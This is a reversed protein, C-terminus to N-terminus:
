AEVEECRRKLFKEYEVEFVDLDERWLDKPTKKKLTKIQKRLKEEEQALEALRSETMSRMQMSLLYEYSPDKGEYALRELGRSELLAELAEDSQHMDIEKDVVGKVFLYKNSARQHKDKLDNLIYNRRDVYIQLRKPYWLKILDEIRRCKVPNEDEDLFYLNTLNKTSVLIDLNNKTEMDPTFGQAPVLGFCVSNMNHYEYYKKLARPLKGTKSMMANLRNVVASTWVGVPLEDIWWKVDKGGRKEKKGESKRLTGRTTYKIPFGSSDLTLTTEENNKFGRYWPVLNDCEDLIRFSEEEDDGDLMRRTRDLLDLPNYQPVTTSFASAIGEQGNFIPPIIPPMYRFEVPEGDEIVRPLVDCDVPPFLAEAIPDLYTQIYRPAGHDEGGAHRTGFQGDNVFLPINNSGVFGSAMGIIAESLSVAGHHYNTTVKIDGTVKELDRSKKGGANRKGEKDYFMAYLIKRHSSKMGDYASMIARTLSMRHYIILQDYVFKTLSLDGTIVTDTVKAPVSIWEKRRIMMPGKCDGMGLEFSTDARKDVTFTVLKLDKFYNPIDRPLHTALGKIYKLQPKLKKLDKQSLSSQFEQFEPNSYFYTPLIGRKKPSDASKAPPYLIVVPTTLTIVCGRQIFTPYEKKIFALVLGKIHIGDDDQDTCICVKGYRLKRYNEDITYDVGRQLGTMKRLIRIEENANVARSSNKMANLLKGKLAFTGSYDQAGLYGIGQETFAKASLGETIYLTCETSEATGAKNADTAKKGISMREGGANEKKAAVADAKLSLKEELAKVFSWKMMKAVAVDISTKWEKATKETSLTYPVSKGKSNMVETLEDKTQSSFKPRDVEARIFLKLYPYIQKASTKLKEKRKKSNFAKVLPSFIANSWADVHIGGATTHIGNVISNHQPSSAEGVDDADDTEVVVCEDGNPSVISMMKSSTDPYFLRVFKEMSPVKITQTSEDVTFTIPLKTLMAVEHAYLRLADIFEPTFGQESEEESPFAFYAFDPTFTIKTYGTKKTYKTVEPPSRKTGNKKYVQIFHTKDTPNTHEVTFKVSFVNTAKAGMGNRGSTKRTEDDDYNTGAFMDGFFVEAPYLEESTTKGTRHDTYEYVARAGPICYGDNMISITNSTTDIEISIMKMKTGKEESRWKNDIANSLIERIINWLGKNFDIRKLVARPPSSTTSIPKGDEDFHEEDGDRSNGEEESTGELLWVEHPHTKANGIFTDPRKLAVEFPNLRKGSAM